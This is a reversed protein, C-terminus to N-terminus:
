EQEQPNIAQERRARTLFNEQDTYVSEFTRLLIEEERNRFNYLRDIFRTTIESRMYPDEKNLLHLVGDSLLNAEEPSVSDGIIGKAQAYDRYLSYLKTVQSSIYETKAREDRFYDFPLSERKPQFGMFKSFIENLTPDSYVNVGNKDFYAQYKHMEVATIANRTTSFIGGFSKGLTVLSPLTSFSEEDPLATLLSVREAVELGRGLVTGFAGLLIDAPVTREQFAGRVTQEFENALAGRTAVNIEGGALWDQLGGEIWTLMTDDVDEPQVELTEAVTDVLMKGFPVGAAGYLAAQGLILRTRMATDYRRGSNPLVLAEIFKAQVQRFQTPISWIGSQWRAKNARTMNLTYDQTRNFIERWDDDTMKLISRGTEKAREATAVEFAFSRAALEGRRYFFLGKDLLTKANQGAISFGSVAASYDANNLISDGLGNRQFQRHLEIFEDVDTGAVKAAKRIAGPSNTYAMSWLAMARPISKTGMAPFLSLAVTAAQAQVWLQAPNLFGLLSHFATGRIVAVPNSSSLSLVRSRAAEPFKRGEMWDAMGRMFNEWRQQDKTPIRFTERLWDRQDELTTKQPHGEPIAEDFRTIRQGEFSNVSNVFRKQQILKWENIPYQSSVHQMYRALAEFPPLTETARAESGYMIEDRSRAGKFLGTDQFSRLEGSLPDVRDEAYVYRVQEGEPVAANLEDAIREGEQNGGAFRVVSQNPNDLDDVGRFVGNVMGPRIEKVVGRVGLNIKPVYSNRRPLIYAPLEKVVGRDALVVTYLGDEARYAQDMAMLVRGNEADLAARVEAKSIPANRLVDFVKADEPLNDLTKNVQQPSLRPAGLLGDQADLLKLGLRNARERQMRNKLVYLVDSFELMNYFSKLEAESTLYVRTGDPRELGQYMLDQPTPRIDARDALVLAEQVNQKKKGSRMGKVPALAQDLIESLTNMLRSSTADLLEADGVLTREFKEVPSALVTKIEGPNRLQYMGFDDLEALVEITETRVVGKEASRVRFAAIAEDVVAENGVEDYLVDIPDFGEDVEKHLRKKVKAPLDMEKVIAEFESFDLPIEPDPRAVKGVPGLVDASLTFRANEADIKTIRIDGVEELVNDIRLNMEAAARRRASAQAAQMEDARGLSPRLMDTNLARRVSNRFELVSARVAEPALNLMVSNHIDRPLNDFGETLDTRFPLAVSVADERTVRVAEALKGGTGDLVTFEGSTVRERILEATIRAGEPPNVTAATSLLKGGKVLRGVVGLLATADLATFLKELNQSFATKSEGSPDIFDQFAAAAMTKNGDYAEGLKKLLEFYFQAREEPPLQNARNVLEPTVGSDIIDKMQFGPILSTAIDLGIDIIGEDKMFESVLHAGYYEVAIERQQWLPADPFSKAALATYPALPSNLIERDEEMKEVLLDAPVGETLLTENEATHLAQLEGRLSERKGELDQATEQKSIEFTAVAGEADGQVLRSHSELAAIDTSVIEPAPTQFEIDFPDDGTPDPELDMPFMDISAPEPVPAAVAPARVPVEPAAVEPAQRLDERGTIEFIEEETAGLERARQALKAEREDLEAIRTATSELVTESM